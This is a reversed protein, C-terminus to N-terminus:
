DNNCHTDLHANCAAIAGPPSPYVYGISRLHPYDCGRDHACDRAEYCKLLGGSEGGSFSWVPTGIPSVGPVDVPGDGCYNLSRQPDTFTHTTLPPLPGSFANCNAGDCTDWMQACPCIVPTPPECVGATCVEGTTTPDADDCPNGDNAETDYVCGSAPSCADATCANSDTCDVPPRTGANCVCDDNTTSKVDQTCKNGDDCLTECSAACSGLLDGHNDVHDAVAADSVSLTHWNAPNGPPFHCISQKAAWAGTAGFLALVPLLLANLILKKMITGKPEV